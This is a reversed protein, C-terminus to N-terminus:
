CKHTTDGERRSGDDGGKRGTNRKEGEWGKAEEDEVVMRAGDERMGENDARARGKM